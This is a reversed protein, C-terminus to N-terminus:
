HLIKSIVSFAYKQYFTFVSSCVIDNSRDKIVFTLKLNEHDKVDQHVYVNLLDNMFTTKRIITISEKCPYFAIDDQFYKLKEKYYADTAAELCFKLYSAQNAHFLSDYDSTTVKATYVHCPNPLQPINVKGLKEEPKIQNQNLFTSCADIFFPDLQVPKKTMNDINVLKKQSSILVENSQKDIM